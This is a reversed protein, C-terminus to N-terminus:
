FIFDWPSPYGSSDWLFGIQSLDLGLVHISWATVVANIHGCVKRPNFVRPKQTRTRQQRKSRMVGSHEASPGHPIASPGCEFM